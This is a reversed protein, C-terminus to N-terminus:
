KIGTFVSTPAYKCPMTYASIAFPLLCIAKAGAM